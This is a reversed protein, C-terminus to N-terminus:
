IKYAGAQLGLVFMPAPMIYVDTNEIKRVEPEGPQLWFAIPPNYARLFSRFGRTIKYGSYGKKVEVPIHNEGIVFDVEAGSKTRWHRIEYGTKWIEAGVAQEFAIGDSIKYEGAFAKVLGCDTFLIRPAKRLAIRPSLTFPRISKLIFLREAM